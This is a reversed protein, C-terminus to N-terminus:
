SSCLNRSENLIQTHKRTDIPGLLDPNNLLQQCLIIDEELLLAKERKSLSHLCTVPYLGALEIRERLNGKNPYDWALLKIGYCQAYKEADTTFRTNTIVWCEHKSDDGKEKLGNVIDNFRSHVYLPVKIDSKYGPNGHHKCEGILLNDDSKAMLDVEHTLCKGEVDIGVQVKFGQFEFLKGIFSEFPYGSPGLELIANKLKYKGALKRSSSRLLRYAKKYIQRTSTTEGLESEINHQIQNILEDSAGSNFLSQRFKSQDFEVVEGSAKKVWKQNM